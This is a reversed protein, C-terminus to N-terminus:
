ENRLVQMPEVRSARLAPILSAAVGTLLVLALVGAYTVADWSSIGFLMSALARAFAAALGVGAVCGIVCARVGQTLFKTVIQSRLAGLALRLGVERRRMSVFYTLTGYLGVCALSVATMAFFSLLVARLRNEAFNDSLHQTLPTVDFVSRSPEIEHIRRRLAEAMSTPNGRTRVLYIPNPTAASICWYVTPAPERNLGQERADGVIGLIESPPASYPGPNAPQLRRGIVAAGPLYTDVFSRNVVLTDMRVTSRCTEGSLLPMGMAEFYGASVYRPDVVIKRDSEAPEGSVRLEARFDFATGPMAASVGAADVGAVARLGDLTRDIRQALGKMDGTEGYNGSVRLTLVHTPEFGPSVRALAQFSRLLLGAGVLLTVALALQVSVLAWQLPHRSSVQSRSAHALSGRVDQSTARLAPLLGCIMTAGIASGLTYLLIRWDLRAEDARPVNRALAHLATSAGAAVALAVVAGVLALVLAETLLQRCVAARSAGLSFRIAIEQERKATQALLLAAINSCALLLLLSVSGFLVWLSSRVGGVKVDKLPTIKVGLNADPRPFQNGLQAQVTALDARAQDVGVGPKLRGVCTYWTIQRNAVAFPFNVPVPSWLDVDREPFLFSPPMVGVITYTFGELRLKKGVARPDAGFRRRWFRDSVVVANPGRFQQEEPAFERGLAPWIGWVQFFRPAVSAKTVKEPLPGSTESVDETYYGTIAQFTSNLRNWDELRVPAVPTQPNKGKRNFQGLDMLQDGNPFPLPRLLIADIASFVATNAGIGLALTAIITASVSPTKGMLRLATRLYMM